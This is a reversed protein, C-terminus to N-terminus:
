SELIDIHSTSEMLSEWLSKIHNPITASGNLSYGQMALGKTHLTNIAQLILARQGPISDLIFAITFGEHGTGGRQTGSCAKFQLLGIACISISCDALLSTDCAYM